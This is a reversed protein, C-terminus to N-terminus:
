FGVEGETRIGVLVHERLRGFHEENIRHSFEPGAYPNMEHKYVFGTYTLFVDAGALKMGVSDVGTRVGGVGIIPKDTMRRLTKISLKAQEVIERGSLGGKGYKSDQHPLTNVVEYGDAFDKSIEVLAQMKDRFLTPSFKYVLPKRKGVEQLASNLERFSEPDEFTKGEKTNPCSINIATYIGFERLLQYSNVVDGIGEDGLITPDHTKAINVAFTSQDRVRSLREAAVVSGCNNLGMRNLMNGDKLRFLRPKENGEGGGYTFSGCEIFGFGYNRVVEPLEAYKDFGAAIGFPNDIKVGFLETESEDTRFRGPSFYGKKMGWKGIDHAREADVKLLCSHAIDALGM